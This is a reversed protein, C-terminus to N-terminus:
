KFVKLHSIQNVTAHSSALAANRYKLSKLYTELSLWSVSNCVVQSRSISLRQLPHYELHQPVSLLKKHKKKTAKKSQLPVNGVRKIHNQKQSTSMKLLWEDEGKMLNEFTKKFKYKGKDIIARQLESQQEDIAAKLKDLFLPVDSKKHQVQNKLLANISESANTTFAVPPDGLGAQRRKSRLMTQKITESKYCKLWRCFSHLPGKADNDYSEWKLSLSQLGKNYEEDSDADVLGDFHQFEVM